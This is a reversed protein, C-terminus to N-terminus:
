RRAETALADALAAPRSVFPSHSGPLLVPEAGALRARAATIAWKDNLVRDETTLIVSQAVAPWTALPSPEVLPRPSQPRLRAVAWNADADTCDDYFVLRADSAALVERGDADHFRAAALFAPSVMESMQGDIAPGPGTPVSCLFVMRRVPRSAAVVPIILSGLSHGVLVVDDHGETAKEIVAAYEEVGAAPDDCPMDPAVTEFGRAHLEPVLRDWCWGGHFAGHVLAITIMARHYCVVTFVM